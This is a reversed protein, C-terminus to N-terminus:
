LVQILPSTKRFFRDTGTSPSAVVSLLVTVFFPHLLYILKTWLPSCCPFLLSSRATVSTKRLTQRIRKKICQWRFSKPFQARPSWAISTTRLHTLTNEYMTYNWIQRGAIAKSLFLFLPKTANWVRGVLAELDRNVGQFYGRTPMSPCTLSM